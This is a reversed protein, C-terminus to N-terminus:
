FYYKFGLQVNRPFYVSGRPTPIRGFNADNFTTNPGPLIDTNMLNFAEIRVELRDAWPMAVNKFLSADLTPKWPLRIDRFRNPTTRLTFNPRQRWVPEEGAACKQNVGNLDAYCTNFWREPTPHDLKASTGAIPELGGPTGLPRGSQWNFNWNVQWGGILEALAGSTNRGFQRGKGFPLNYVGSFVWIHPRDYDTVQKIAATDQSNLFSTQEM